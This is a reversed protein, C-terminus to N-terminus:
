ARETRDEESQSGFRRAYVKTFEAGLLVIQASYYVWLLLIVLSSGAGFITAIGSWSLYLEIGWKGVNFLLSTIAAGVWVDGWQLPIAPIIKYIMAFHVTAVLFVLFHDLLQVGLSHIPPPLLGGFLDLAATFATSALISVALVFGSGLVLIFAIGRKKLMNLIGSEGKLEVGWIMFLADQLAVFVGTAGVFMLVLGALTALLGSEHARVSELMSAITEATRPGLTARIEDFVQGHVTEAGFIQGTVGILIVLIPAISFLTYYALAAGMRAAKDEMYEALAGAMLQPFRGIWRWTM